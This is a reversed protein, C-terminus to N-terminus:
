KKNTLDIISDIEVEVQFKDNRPPRHYHYQKLEYLTQDIVIELDAKSIKKDIKDRKIELIIHSFLLQINFPVGNSFTFIRDSTNENLEIGMETALKEILQFSQEKTLPELTISKVDNLYKDLIPYRNIREEGAYIFVIKKETQMRLFRHFELLEVLKNKGRLSFVEILYAFEDIAFVLIKNEPVVNNIAELIEDRSVVRRRSTEQPKLARLYNYLYGSDPLNAEENIYHFIFEDKCTYMLQNLLSTKGMRRPAYIYVSQGEIIYNKLLEIEKERGFFDKTKVPIGVINRM